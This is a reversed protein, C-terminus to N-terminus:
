SCHKRDVMMTQVDACWEFVQLGVGRLVKGADDPSRENQGARGDHGRAYNMTNRRDRQVRISKDCFRFSSGFVVPVRILRALRHSLRVLSTPFHEPVPWVRKQM